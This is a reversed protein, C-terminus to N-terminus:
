ATALHFEQRNAWASHSGRLYFATTNLLCGSQRIAVAFFKALPIIATEGGIDIKKARRRQFRPKSNNLRRGLAFGYFFLSTPPIKVTNPLNRGTIVRPKTNNSYSVDIFAFHNANFGPRNASNKRLLVTESAFLVTVAPLLVTPPLLLALFVSSEREVSQPLPSPPLQSILPPPPLPPPPM